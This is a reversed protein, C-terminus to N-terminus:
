GDVKGQLRGIALTMTDLRGRTERANKDIKKELKEGVAEVRRDFKEEMEDVQGTMTESFARMSATTVFDKQNLQDIKSSLGHLTQDFRAWQEAAPPPAHPPPLVAAAHRGSDHLAVAAQQMGMAHHSGTDNAPAMPYGFPPQHQEQMAPPRGSKKAIYPLMAKIVGVIAAAVAAIVAVIIGVDGSSV